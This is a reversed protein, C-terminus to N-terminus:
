IVTISRNPSDNRNMAAFNRSINLAFGAWIWGEFEWDRLRLGSARARLIWIVWHLFYQCVKPGSPPMIHMGPYRPYVQLVRNEVVGFVVCLCVYVCWSSVGSRGVCNVGTGRGVWGDVWGGM